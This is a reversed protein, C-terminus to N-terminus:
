GPLLSWDQASFQYWRDINICPYCIRKGRQEDEDNVTNKKEDKKEDWEKKVGLWVWLQFFREDERQVNMQSNFVWNVWWINDDLFCVEISM